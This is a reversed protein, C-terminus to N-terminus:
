WHCSAIPTVTTRLPRNYNAVLLFDFSGEELVPRFRGLARAGAQDGGTDIVVPGFRRDFYHNVVDLDVLCTKGGARARLTALNMAAESKGVGFAGSVICIRKLDV